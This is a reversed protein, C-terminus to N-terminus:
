CFGVHLYLHSLDSINGYRLNGFEDWGIKRKDYVYKKREKKAKEIQRRNKEEKSISHGM